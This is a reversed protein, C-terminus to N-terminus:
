ARATGTACTRTAPRTAYWMWILAAVIIVGLWQTLLLGLNLPYYKGDSYRPPDFIAFYGLHFEIGPGAAFQFPPFILMLVIVAAALVLIWRQQNNM